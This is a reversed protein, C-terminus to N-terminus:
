LLEELVVNFNITLGCRLTIFQNWDMEYWIENFNLDWHCTYPARTPRTLQSTAHVMIMEPEPNSRFSTVGSPLGIAVFEIGTTNQQLWNINDLAHNRDEIWVDPPPCSYILPKFRQTNTPKRFWVGVDPRLDRNRVVCITNVSTWWNQNQNELSNALKRHIYEKGGSNYKIFLNDGIREANFSNHIDERAKLNGLEGAPFNIKVIGSDKGRLEQEIRARIEDFKSEVSISGNMNEIQIRFSGKSGMDTITGMNFFHIVLSLYFFETIKVYVDKNQDRNVVDELKKVDKYWSTRHAGQVELTIQNSQFFTDFELGEMFSPHYEVILEENLLIQAILICKAQFKCNKKSEIEKKFEDLD